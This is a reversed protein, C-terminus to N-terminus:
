IKRKKGLAIDCCFTGCKEVSFFSVFFINVAVLNSSKRELYFFSPSVTHKTRVPWKFDLPFEVVDFNAVNNGVVPTLAEGFTCEEEPDVVVQYHKLCVRFRTRCQGPCAHGRLVVAGDSTGDCCNGDSDRGFANEFSKLRLEFVGQSEASAQFFHLYKIAHFHQPIEHRCLQSIQSIIVQDLMATAASALLLLLRWRIM